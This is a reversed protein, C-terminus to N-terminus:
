SFQFASLYLFTGLSVTLLYHSRAQSGLLRAGSNSKLWQVLSDESLLIPVFTLFQSTSLRKFSSFYLEDLM